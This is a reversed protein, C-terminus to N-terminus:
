LYQGFDMVAKDKKEGDSEQGKKEMERKFAATQEENAPLVAQKGDPFTAVQVVQDKGYLEEIVEKRDKGDELKHQDWEKGTMQLFQDKRVAVWNSKVPFAVIMEGDKQALSSPSSLLVVTEGSFVIKNFAIASREGLMEVLAVYKEDLQDKLDKIVLNTRESYVRRTM